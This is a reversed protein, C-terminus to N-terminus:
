YQGKYIDYLTGLVDQNQKFSNLYNQFKKYDADSFAGVTESNQNPLQKYYAKTIEEDSFGKTQSKLPTLAPPGQIYKKLFALQPETKILNLIGAQSLDAPSGSKGILNQIEQEANTTNKGIVPNNMSAQNATAANVRGASVMKMFDQALQPKGIKNAYDIVGQIGKMPAQSAKSQQGIANEMARLKAADAKGQNSAASSRSSATAAAAKAQAQGIMGAIQDQFKARQATGEKQAGQLIEQEISNHGAGLQQITALQNAKNTEAISRQRDIAANSANTSDVAVGAGAPSLAATKAIAAASADKATQIDKLGTDYYQGVKQTGTEYLGKVRDAGQSIYDNLGAYLDALKQDGTQGFKTLNAVAPGASYSVGGGGGGSGYQADIAQLELDLMQQIPDNAQSQQQQGTGALLSHLSEPLPGGPARSNPYTISVKGSLNKNFIPPINQTPSHGAM